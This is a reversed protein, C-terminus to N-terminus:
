YKTLRFVFYLHCLNVTIYLAKDQRATWSPCNVSWVFGMWNPSCKFTCVVCIILAVMLPSDKNKYHHKGQPMSLCSHVSFRDEFKPHTTKLSAQFKRFWGMFYLNDPYDPSPATRKGGLEPKWSRPLWILTTQKETALELSNAQEM